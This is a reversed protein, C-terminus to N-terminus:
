EKTRTLLTIMGYRSVALPIIRERHHKVTNEPLQDTPFWQGKIGAEEQELLYVKSVFHGRAEGPHNFDDIFKVEEISALFENKVLRAFVDEFEEGPRLASGPCHWEGPYATDDKPKQTMFVELGDISKGLRLVVAEIATTISVRAIADFLEAGLPKLPDIEALVKVAKRKKEEYDM